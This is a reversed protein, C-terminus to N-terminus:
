RVRWWRDIELGARSDFAHWELCCLLARDGSPLAPLAPIGCGRRGGCNSLLAVNRTLPQKVPCVPRCYIGTTKVATYFRGDYRTDRQLRATNCVEFSLM